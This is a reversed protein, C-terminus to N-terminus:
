LSRGQSLVLAYHHLSFGALVWLHWIFHFYRNRGDRLVFFLGIGYCMVGLMVALVPVEFIRSWNPLAITPAVVQFVFLSNVLTSTKKGNGFVLIIVAVAIVSLLCLVAVGLIPAHWLFQPLTYAHAFCSCTVAVAIMSVDCKYFFEEQWIEMVRESYHYCCSSLFLIMFSGYFITELVGDLHAQSMFCLALLFGFAHSIINLRREMRWHWNARPLM